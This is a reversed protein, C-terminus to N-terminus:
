LRFGARDEMNLLSTDFLIREFVAPRMAVLCEDDGDFVVVPEDTAHAQAVLSRVNELENLVVTDM